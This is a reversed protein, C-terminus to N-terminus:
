PIRERLTVEPRFHHVEKGHSIFIQKSSNDMPPYTFYHKIHLVNPLHMTSLSFPDVEEWQTQVQSTQSQISDTSIIWKTVLELLTDDKLARFYFFLKYYSFILQQPRFPIVKQCLGWSLKAVVMCDATLELGGEMVKPNKSDIYKQSDMCCLSTSLDRSLSNSNMHFSFVYFSLIPCIYM